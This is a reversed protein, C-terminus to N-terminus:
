ARHTRFPSPQTAGHVYLPHRPSGDANTGLCQMKIRAARLLAVVQAGRARHAGHKGWAAMVLAARRAAEVIAADNEPGVPDPHAYLAAPDTSRLAFINAVEMGGYGWARAFVACRRVTPDLVKEDATSPNLMVWLCAGGTESWRRWLGYRYVGTRDFAAGAALTAAEADIVSVRREALRSTGKPM